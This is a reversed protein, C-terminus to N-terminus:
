QAENHRSCVTGLSGEFDSYLEDTNNVTIEEKHTNNHCFNMCAAGKCGDYMDKETASVCRTNNSTQWKLVQPHHEVTPQGLSRPRCPFSANEELLPVHDRSRGGGDRVKHVDATKSAKTRWITSMSFVAVGDTPAARGAASAWSPPVTDPRKSPARAEYGFTREPAMRGNTSAGRPRAHDVREDSFTWGISTSSTGGVAAAVAAILLFTAVTLARALSADKTRAHQGRTISSRESSGHPPQGNPASSAEGLSVSDTTMWNAVEMARCQTGAGGHPRGAPIGDARTADYGRPQKDQVTGTGRTVDAASSPVALEPQPSRPSAPTGGDHPMTPEKLLSDVISM